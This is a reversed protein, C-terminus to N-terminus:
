RRGLAERGTELQWYAVTKGDPSFAVADVQQHPGQPRAIRQGTAADWLRVTNDRSGTAIPRATPASRWATSWPRM